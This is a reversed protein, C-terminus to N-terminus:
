HRGVSKKLYIDDDRIATSGGQIVSSTDAKGEHYKDHNCYYYRYVEFRKYPNSMIGIM